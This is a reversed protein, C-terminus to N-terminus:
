CSITRYDEGGCEHTVKIVKNQCAPTINTINFNGISGPSLKGTSPTFSSPVGDIYFALKSIDVDITGTNRITSNISDGSFYRANEIEIKMAMSCTAQSSANSATNTLIDIIGTFWTFTLAALSVVIMLILVVAIITSVGKM